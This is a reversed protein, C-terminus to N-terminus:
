GAEEEDDALSVLLGALAAHLTTRDAANLSRMLAEDARRAIVRLQAEIERARPSLRVRKSRGDAPDRHMTILEARALRRLLGTMTSRPQHTAAALASVHRDDEDFLTFLVPGIGRGPTIDAAVGAEKLLSRLTANLALAARSLLMSTPEAHVPM